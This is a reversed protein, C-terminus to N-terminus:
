NKFAQKRADFEKCTLKDNESDYVHKYLRVTKIAGHKRYKNFMEIAKAEDDYKKDIQDYTHTKAWLFYTIKTGKTTKNTETKAQKKAQVSAWFVVWENDTFVKGVEALAERCIRESDNM